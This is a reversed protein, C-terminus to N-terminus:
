MDTTSGSGADSLVKVAYINAGKAVGYQSGVATGSTFAFNVEPRPNLFCLPERAIPETVTEMRMLTTALHLEGALADVSPPTPPTLVLTLSTSM